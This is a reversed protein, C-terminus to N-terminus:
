FIRRIHLSFDRGPADLGSGHVRCRKDLLNDIGATFRWGSDFSFQANAGIRGWGPTGTPDIRVDRIDRASLRNQKGAAVLWAELTLRPSYRLEASVRGYLPPVRDAPEGVGVLQQKGWTYNMAAELRIRDSVSVDVAAEVGHLSSSAANVSQVVDRGSATVQGTGVSVIRDAYRLRYVVLEARWRDDHFRLGVDGHVVEEAALGTNPINFRNGPRDGLTGLDAINPARFGAGINAFFQLTDNVRFAWGSDGSFRSLEGGRLKPQTVSEGESYKRRQEICYMFYDDLSGSPVTGRKAMDPYHSENSV